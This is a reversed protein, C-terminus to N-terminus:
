YFEEHDQFPWHEDVIRLEEEDGEAEGLFHEKLAKNKEVADEYLDTRLWGEESLDGLESRWHDVVLNFDLWDPEQKYHEEVESEDFKVPCGSVESAAAAASDWNEVIRILAGRLTILNGSWQRGARDVLHQRPLLFPDRLAELHQKNLGGNFVRYLYYLVKRRHLEDAHSREEPSLLDYDHPLAPKELGKPPSSDPNEFITPHGAVLLLPLITTHQWDIMCTIKHSEPCVFLNNPNHDPHRLTPSNVPSRSDGPLLYPAVSLYKDLLHLYEKPLKKGKILCNHPFENELPKGFKRTWDAERQGISRLYDRPNKGDGSDDQTGSAYLEGQLHSPVDEKYYISGSYGFPLAFLKTEIDVFSTILRHRELKTMDFWRTDLGIGPAKEMIIYEAGIPNGSIDSSWGYVKPVPIGKSRLFDLTAVESATAYHKPVTVSYPIKVIVPHGDEMTALFVRNFGGEAFKEIKSIQGHGVREELVRQLAALDFEVYREALRLKENYLYRGSTYSFLDSNPIGGIMRCQLIQRTSVSEGRFPSKFSGRTTRM